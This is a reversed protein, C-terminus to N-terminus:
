SPRGYRRWAPPPPAHNSRRDSGIKLAPPSRNSTSRRNRLIFAPCVCCHGVCTLRGPPPHTGPLSIAMLRLASAAQCTTAELDFSALCLLLSLIKENPGGQRLAKRRRRHQFEIPKAPLYFQGEPAHLRDHAQTMQRFFIRGARACPQVSFEEGAKQGLAHQLCGIRKGGPSVSQVTRRLRHLSISNMYWPSQM